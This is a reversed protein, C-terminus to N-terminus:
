SRAALANLLAAALSVGCSRRGFSRLPGFAYVWVSSGLVCARPMVSGSDLRPLSIRGKDISRMHREPHEHHEIVLEVVGYRLNASGVLLPPHCM